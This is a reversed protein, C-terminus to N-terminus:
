AGANKDFEELRLNGCVNPLYIGNDKPLVGLLKEDDLVRLLNMLGYLYDRNREDGPNGSGSGVFNQVDKVIFELVTQIMDWRDTGEDERIDFLLGDTNANRPDIQM